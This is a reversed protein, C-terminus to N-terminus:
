HRSPGFAVDVTKMYPILPMGLGSCMNYHDLMTSFLYLGSPFVRDGILTETNMRLIGRELLERAWASLKMDAGLVRRIGTATVIAIMSAPEVNIIVEARGLHDLILLREEAEVSGPHVMM